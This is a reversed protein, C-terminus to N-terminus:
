RDDRKAFNHVFPWSSHVVPDFYLAAATWELTAAQVVPVVLPQWPIPHSHKLVALLEEYTGPRCNPAIPELRVCM